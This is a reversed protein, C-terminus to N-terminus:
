LDVIPILDDPIHHVLITGDKKRFAKPAISELQMIRAFYRRNEEVLLCIIQEHTLGQDFAMDVLFNNQRAEEITM